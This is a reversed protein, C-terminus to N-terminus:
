APPGAPRGNRGAPVPAPGRDPTLAADITENM